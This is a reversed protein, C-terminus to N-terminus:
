STTAEVATKLVAMKAEEAPKEKTTYYRSPNSRRAKPKDDPNAIERTARRIEDLREETVDMMQMVKKKKEPRGFNIRDWEYARLITLDRSRFHPTNFTGFSWHHEDFKFSDDLYGMKKAMEFMKTNPLPTSIFFKVYDVAIMEAFRITQLIEDYTEGPSGIIFNAALDIGGVKKIYNIMRLLRDFNIPKKIVEKLVRPSGSEIAINLYVCGSAKALDVTHEDMMFVATAPMQWIINLKRDIIMQLLEEAKHKNMFFNDDDFIFCKIGYNKILMEMEGIVHEASRYRTPGGSISEVICFTCGIPCGRTMRVRAYPLARPRETSERGYRTAYKMFDILHYAPYKLASLGQIFDARQQIVTKGDKRYGVGNKPLDKGEFIHALLDGFVAEGEGIVAYDLNPNAMTAEPSAIVYVGGMITVISSDVSKVIDVAKHGAKSYENTFNSLGVVDPKEKRVIEAFDEESLDDIICDVVKVDYKGELQGALLCIQTPFILWMTYYQDSTAWHHNPLVLMVKKRGAQGGAKEAYKEM